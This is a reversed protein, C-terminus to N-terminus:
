SGPETLVPRRLPIRRARDPKRSRALSRSESAVFRVRMERLAVLGVGRDSRDLRHRPRLRIGRQDPRLRTGTKTRTERGSVNRTRRGQGDTVREDSEVRRTRRDATEALRHQGTRADRVGGDSQGRFRELLGARIGQDRGTDRTDPRHQHHRDERSSRGTPISSVGGVSQPSGGTTKRRDSQAARVRWSDLCAFRNEHM